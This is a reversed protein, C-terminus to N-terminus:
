KATKEWEFYKSVFESPDSGSFMVQRRGVDSVAWEGNSQFTIEVHLSFKREIHELIEFITAM